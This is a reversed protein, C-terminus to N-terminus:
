LSYNTCVKEGVAPLTSYGTSGNAYTVGCGGFMDCGGVNVITHYENCKLSCGSLIISTLILIYKLM